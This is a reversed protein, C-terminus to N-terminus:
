DNEKIEKIYEVIAPKVKECLEGTIQNIVGYLKRETEYDYSRTFPVPACNIFAYYEDKDLTQFNENMWDCDIFVYESFGTDDCYFQFDCYVSEGNKELSVTGTTLAIDELSDLYEVESELSVVIKLGNFEATRYNHLYLAKKM